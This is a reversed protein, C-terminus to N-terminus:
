WTFGYAEVVRRPVVFRATKQPDVIQSVQVDACLSLLMVLDETSIGECRESLIRVMDHVATDCAADLSPESAITCFQTDNLLAPNTLSRDKLVEFSATVWSAIEAGSVSIEGDGMVAHVDGCGFLAGEVSVPFYLTAGAEIITTDMNGGHHDPTGCNISKGPEPAVGIVGIMPRCDLEVGEDWILKGDVVPKVVNVLGDAFLDGCTGEAEGTCMCAKSDVDIAHLHVKLVDGPEAGEIYIPGTAPNVRDWDLGDITNDAKLQNAFCDQTRIRVTDGSKITMVPELDASFAYFVADDNLELM